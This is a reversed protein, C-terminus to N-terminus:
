KNTKKLRECEKRYPLPVDRLAPFTDMVGTVHNLVAYEGKKNVMYVLDGKKRWDRLDLFCVQNECDVLGVEDYQGWCVQFRGDGFWDVTDRGTRHKKRGCGAGVAALLTAVLLCALGIRTVVM